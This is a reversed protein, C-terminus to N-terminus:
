YHLPFVMLILMDFKKKTFEKSIVVETTQSPTLEPTTNPSQIIIKSDASCYFTGFHTNLFTPHAGIYNNYTSPLKTYTFLDMYCNQVTLSGSFPSFLKDSNQYFYSNDVVLNASGTVHIIGYTPSNCKVYNCYQVTGTSGQMQFSCGSTIINSVYTSYKVLVDSSAYHFGCGRHVNNNFSINNSIMRQSGSQYKMVNNRSASSDACKSVSLFLAYNPNSAGTITSIFQGSYLDGTCTCYYGCVRNLVIAASTSSFYIAGGDKTGTAHCNYFISGEVVLKTNATACYIAGGHSSVSLGSFQIENIYFNDSISSYRTNTTGVTPTGSFYDNFSSYCFFVFYVLM